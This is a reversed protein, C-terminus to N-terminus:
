RPLRVDVRWAGAEPGITVRGGLTRVREVIGPLGRGGGSPAAPGTFPNTVTIELEDPAAHVRVDVPVPGAHKLANTLSEQVIRYGAQSVVTPLAEPDGTTEARVRVGGARTRELLDPLAALTPTPATPAPGDSEERLLGLVHDLDTLAARASEEIASLARRAFAPDHDLVRGAAGAQLTVVSLAHGVSDHLDRALRNREALRHAREEAAALRDAASPGLFVPALRAMLAGVGAVLGVLLALSAIGALPATGTGWDASTYGWVVLSRDDAGLLPAGILVAAAPPVTLTLASVIGGLVLHLAFWCATRWRDGWGRPPGVNPPGDLLAHAAGGSLVRVAPLFATVMILPVSGFLILFQVGLLLLGDAPLQVLLTSVFLGLLVYPTLLAGGMILFIWRVWLGRM